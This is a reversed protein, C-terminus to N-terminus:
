PAEERRVTRAVYSYGEQNARQFSFEVADGDNLERFGEGELASFHAWVEGPVDPSTILGWGEDAYWHKM